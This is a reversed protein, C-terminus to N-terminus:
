NRSRRYRPSAFRLMELGDAKFTGVDSQLTFHATLGDTPVEEDVHFGKGSLMAAPALEQARLTPPTEFKGATEAAATGAAILLLALLCCRSLGSWAKRIEEYRFITRVSEVIM